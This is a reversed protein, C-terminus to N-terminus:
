GSSKDRDASTNGNSSHPILQALVPDISEGYTAAHAKVATKNLPQQAVPVTGPAALM